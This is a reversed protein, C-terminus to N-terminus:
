GERGQSFIKAFDQDSDFQKSLALKSIMVNMSVRPCKGQVYLNCIRAHPGKWKKQRGFSLDRESRERKRKREKPSPSRSESSNDEDSEFLGMRGELAKLRKLM